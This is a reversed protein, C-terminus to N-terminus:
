AAGPEQDEGGAPSGPFAAPDGDAPIVPRSWSMRKSLETTVERWAEPDWGEAVGLVTHDQRVHVLAPLSELELAKVVVRDPDAFTLLERAWPGLFQGAQAPTGTVLWGVRCDAGTYTRLIKGATELIWASQHTFPDIVVVALQFTTLWEELTRGEGEIPQLELDGSLRDIAV